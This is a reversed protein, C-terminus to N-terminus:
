PRGTVNALVMAFAAAALLGLMLWINVAVRKELFAIRAPPPLEPPERETGARIARWSRRVAINLLYLVALNLLLAVAILRGWTGGLRLSGTALYAVALGTLLTFGGLINGWRIAVPMFRGAFERRTSPTSAHLLPAVLVAHVAVLGLWSAALMVHLFKAGTYLPDVAV